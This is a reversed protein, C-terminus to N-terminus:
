IILSLATMYFQNKNPTFKARNVYMILGNMEADCNDDSLIQNDAASDSVKSSDQHWITVEKRRRKNSSQPPESEIIDVDEEPSPITNALLIRRPLNDPNCSVEDDSANSDCDTDANAQEIPPEIAYLKTEEDDSLEALLDNTSKM